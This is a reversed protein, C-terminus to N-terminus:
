PYSGITLCVIYTERKGTSYWDETINWPTGNPCKGGQSKHAVCMGGKCEWFERVPIHPHFVLGMYREDCSM